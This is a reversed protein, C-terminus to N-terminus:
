TCEGNVAVNQLVGFCPQLFSTGNRSCLSEYVSNEKVDETNSGNLAEPTHNHQAYWRKNHLNCCHDNHKPTTRNFCTEPRLTTCWNIYCQCIERIPILKPFLYTVITTWANSKGAERWHPTYISIHRPHEVKRKTPPQFWPLCLSSM